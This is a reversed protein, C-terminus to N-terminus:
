KKQSVVGALHEKAAQIPIAICRKEMYTMMRNILEQAEDDLSSFESKFVKSIAHKRVAKIQTPVDSLAREIQRAKHLASFSSVQEALIIKAKTVEKERFALNQSILENLGDIEIYETNFNDVVEPAINNPISLDVLIKKNDEGQLCQKYIDSTIVPETAGTCVIMVDFGEKYNTLDDLTYAKGDLFNALETANDLSRNFVTFNQFEYKILFKAVLTNTQGAGVILFRSNANLPHKLLERFALSVVSVPREGIKTTSYIRKASEIAVRMAIRVSDGSVHLRSSKDYAERLQRLIEREGIVLSDISGSVEFLHNIAGKGEYTGTYSKFTEFNTVASYVTKHFHKLFSDNLQHNTTFLFLVRNCTALYLLEDLGLATKLYELTEQFHADEDMRPLVFNGIEKLPATKHTLTIIKYCNLTDM